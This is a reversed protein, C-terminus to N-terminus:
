PFRRCDALQVARAIDGTSVLGLLRGSEVVAFTPRTGPALAAVLDRLPARPSVVYPWARDVLDGVRWTALRRVTPGGAHAPSEAQNALQEENLGFRRGLRYAVASVLM